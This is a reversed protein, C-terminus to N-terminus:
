AAHWVRSTRCTCWACHRPKRQPQWLGSAADPVARTCLHPVFVAPRHVAHHGRDLVGGWFGSAMGIVSGVLGGLILGGFSIILSVQAGYVVRTLVDQGFSDTGFPHALSPMHLISMYDKENPGYPSLLRVLLIAMLTSVIIM